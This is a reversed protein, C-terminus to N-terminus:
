SRFLQLRSQYQLILYLILTVHNQVVQSGGPPSLVKEPVELFASEERLPQLIRIWAETPSSTGAEGSASMVVRFLGAQPHSM